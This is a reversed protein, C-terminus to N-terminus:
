SADALVEIGPNAVVFADLASQADLLEQETRHSRTVLSEPLKHHAPVSDLQMEIGRFRHEAADLATQLHRYQSVLAARERAKRETIDGAIISLSAAISELAVTQREMLAGFEFGIVDKIDDATM